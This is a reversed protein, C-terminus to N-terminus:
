SQIGGVGAIHGWLEDIVAPPMWDPSSLLIFSNLSGPEEKQLQDSLSAIHTEVSPAMAKISEYNERKLYDPLARRGEHDYRRGFAQWAFYNDDLPFGCALR